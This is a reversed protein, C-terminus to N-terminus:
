ISMAQEWKRKALKWLTQAKKSTILPFDTNKKQKNKDKQKSKEKKPQEKSNQRKTSHQMDEDYVKKKGENNMIRGKEEEMEDSGARIGLLPLASKVKNKIGTSFNKARKWIIKLGQGVLVDQMSSGDAGVDLEDGM